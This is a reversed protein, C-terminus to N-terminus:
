VKTKLEELKTIRSKRKNGISLLVNQITSLHGLSRKAVDAYLESATRELNLSEEVFRSLNANGNLTDRPLADELDLGEFSFATELADTVTEQYTRSILLGNAKSETAFRAFLTSYEPFRDTLESYFKESYNELDQLYSIVSSTTPNKIRM